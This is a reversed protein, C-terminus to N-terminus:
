GHKGTHSLSTRPVETPERGENDREGHHQDAAGGVFQRAQGPRLGFHDARPLCPILPDSRQAFLQHRSVDRSYLGLIIRVQRPARRCRWDDVKQDNGPTAIPAREAGANELSPTPNRWPRHGARGEIRHGADAGACQDSREGEEAIVLRDVLNGRHVAVRLGVPNTRAPQEGKDGAAGGIGVNRAELLLNSAGQVPVHHPAQDVRAPITADEHHVRRVQIIAFHM